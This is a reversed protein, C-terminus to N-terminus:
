ITRRHVTRYPVLLLNVTIDFRIMNLNLYVITALPGHSVLPRPAWEPGQDDSARGTGLVVGHMIKTQNTVLHTWQQESLDAANLVNKTAAAAPPEDPSSNEAQVVVGELPQEDPKKGLIARKVTGIIGRVAGPESAPNREQTL